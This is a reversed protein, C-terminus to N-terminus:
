KKQWPCNFLETENTIIEHQSTM